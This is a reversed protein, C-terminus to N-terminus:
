TFIDYLIAAFNASCYFLFFQVYSVAIVRKKQHTPM